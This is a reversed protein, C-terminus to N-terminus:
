ATPCISIIAKLISQPLAIQVCFLRRQKERRGGLNYPMGLQPASSLQNRLKM